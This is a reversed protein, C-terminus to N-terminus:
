SWHDINLGTLRAFEGNKERFFNRLHDQDRKSIPPISRTLWRAALNRISRPLVKKGVTTLKRFASFSGALGFVMRGTRSFRYSKNKHSKEPPAEFDADPVELFQFCRRCTATPDAILQEMTLFLFRDIPFEALYLKIQGAYDSTRLYFSDHDIAARFPLVEEGTRVRHWYSSYTRMVPDRTLYIFRADPCVTRIRKPVGALPSKPDCVRDPPDHGPLPAASYSPTADLLVAGDINEPFRQRYWGLDRDRHRTFYNPEKPNSVIVRPHRDLLHALTTTASKQAGILFATPPFM